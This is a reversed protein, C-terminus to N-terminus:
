LRVEKSETVTAVAVDNELRLLVGIIEPAAQRAKHELLMANWLKRATSDTCVRRGTEVLFLLSDSIGALRALQAQSLGLEQRTQKIVHRDKLRPLLEAYKREILDHLLAWVPTAYSTGDTAAYVPEPAKTLGLLDLFLTPTAM